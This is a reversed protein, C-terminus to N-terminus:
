ADVPAGADRNRLRERQEGVSVREAPQDVSTEADLPVAEDFEFASAPMLFPKVYMFVLSHRACFRHAKEDADANDVALFRGITVRSSGRYALEFSELHAQQELTQIAVQLATVTKELAAIRTEQDM